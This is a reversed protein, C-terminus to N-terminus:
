NRGTPCAGTPRFVKAEPDELRAYALRVIPFPETSSWADHADPRRCSPIWCDASGEHYEARPGSSTVNYCYVNALRPPRQRPPPRDPRVDRTPPRSLPRDPQSIGRCMRSHRQRPHRPRDDPRRRHRQRRHIETESNWDCLNAFIKPVPRSFHLTPISGGGSAAPPAPRVSVPVSARVYERACPCVCVYITQAAVQHRPWARDRRSSPRPCLLRLM